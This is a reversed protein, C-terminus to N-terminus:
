ITAKNKSEPGGSRHKAVIKNAEDPHISHKEWDEKSSSHTFHHEGFEAGYRERYEAKFTAYCM